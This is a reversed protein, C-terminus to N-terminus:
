VELIRMSLYKTAKFCFLVFPFVSVCIYMYINAHVYITDYSINQVKISKSLIIDPTDQLKEM